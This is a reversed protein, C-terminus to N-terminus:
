AKNGSIVAIHIASGQQLASDARLLGQVERAISEANGGYNTELNVEM